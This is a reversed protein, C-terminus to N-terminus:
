RETCGENIGNRRKKKLMNMRHHIRQKNEDQLRSIKSNKTHYTRDVREEELSSKAATKRSVACKNRNGHETRDVREEELTSKAATKRPVASKNPNRHEMRAVRQEKFRSNVGFKRSVASKNGNGHETGVVTQGELNCNVGFKQRVESPTPVGLLPPPPPASFQGLTPQQQQLPYGYTYYPMPFPYFPMFGGSQQFPWMKLKFINRECSSVLYQRLTARAIM